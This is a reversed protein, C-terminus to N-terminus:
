SDKRLAKKAQDFGRKFGIEYSHCISKFVNDEAIQSLFFVDKAKLGFPKDHKGTFTQATQLKKEFNEPMVVPAPDETQDPVEPAPTWTEMAELAAKKADQILGDMQDVNRVDLFVSATDNNIAKARIEPSAAGTTILINITM